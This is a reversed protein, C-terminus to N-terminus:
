RVPDRAHHALVLEGLVVDDRADEVTLHAVGRGLRNRALRHLTAHRSARPLERPDRVLRRRPPGDILTTTVPAVPVIPSATTRASTPRPSETTARVRSGSRADDRSGSPTSATPQIAGFSSGAGASANTRQSPTIWKSPSATACRHLSLARRSLRSERTSPVRLRRSPM